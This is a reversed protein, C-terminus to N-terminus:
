YNPYLYCVMSHSLPTRLEVRGWHILHSYLQQKSTKRKTLFPSKFGKQPYIIGKNYKVNKCLNKNFVLLYVM